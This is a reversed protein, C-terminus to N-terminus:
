SRVGRGQPPRVVLSYEQKYEPLGALEAEVVLEWRVENHDAKFSHMATGPVALEGRAEWARDMDITFDAARCVEARYVCRKETRTDTGQKYTASEECVLTVRLARVQLAGSQSFYLRAPEGAVLPFASVEVVTPGVRLVVRLQKLFYFLLVVWGVGLALDILGLVLLVPWVRFGAVGVLGAALGAVLAGLAALGIGLCGLLQRPPLQAPLRVALVTGPQDKGGAAPVTPYEVEPGSAAGKAPRSEEVEVPRRMKLWNHRMGIFGVAFFVMPLLLMGYTGWNHGRVLVVRDPNRPDYWCPYQGGVAFNRLIAERGARDSTYSGHVDYTWAEHQRGDATHRVHLEPRYTPGDEGQSEGLRKALVVCRGEVFRHNARWEPVVMGFVMGALGGVGFLFFVAFFLIGCGPPLRHAPPSRRLRDHLNAM